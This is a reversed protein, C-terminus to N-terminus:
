TGHAAPEFAAFMDRLQVLLRKARIPDVIVVASRSNNHHTAVVAEVTTFRARCSLCCRRRRLGLATKRTEIVEFRANLAKLDSMSAGEKIKVILEGPKFEVFVGAKVLKGYDPGEHPVDRLHIELIARRAGEDPPPIFVVRFRGDHISAARGGKQM